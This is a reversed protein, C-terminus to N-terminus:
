QASEYSATIQKLLDRKEQDTLRLKLFEDYNKFMRDSLTGRSLPQELGSEFAGKFRPLM